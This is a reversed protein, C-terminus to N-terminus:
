LRSAVSAHWCFTGEEEFDWEYDEPQIPRTCSVICKGLWQEMLISPNEAPSMGMTCQSDLELSDSQERTILEYKLLTKHDLPPMNAELPALLRQCEATLRKIAKTAEAKLSGACRSPPIGRRIEYLTRKKVEPDKSRGGLRIFSPEFEM